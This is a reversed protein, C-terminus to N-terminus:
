GVLAAIQDDSLGLEKLKAKGAAADTAAKAQITDIEAQAALAAATAADNAAIEEDTLETYTTEGTACNFELKTAM